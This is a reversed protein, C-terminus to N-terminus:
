RAMRRRRMLAMAPLGLVLAATSPEPIPEFVITDMAHSSNFNVVVATFQDVGLQEAFIPQIRNASNNGYEITADFFPSLPDVFESFAIQAILVGNNYFQINSLDANRQGSEGIIEMDIIDMGFSVIPVHFSFALRGGQREDDPRDLLGNDNNDRLNEQIILLNNLRTDQLNGGNWAYEIDNDWSTDLNSNFLTAVDPHSPHNNDAAILVGQSFYQAGVFSGAPLDDFNVVAGQAGPALLAVGSGLFLLARSITM